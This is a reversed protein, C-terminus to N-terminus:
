AAGEAPEAPETAPPAEPDIRTRDLYAQVDAATYRRLGGIRHYTPGRGAEAWVGLTKRTIGLLEAAEAQTIWREPEPM